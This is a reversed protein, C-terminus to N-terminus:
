ICNDFLSIFCVQSVFDKSGYFGLMLSVKELSTSLSYNILAQNVSCLHAIVECIEKKYQSYITTPNTDNKKALKFCKNVATLSYKSTPVMVFYLLIKIIDLHLNECKSQIIEEIVSLLSNQLEFDSYKLSRKTDNLLTQFIARIIENKIKTSLM